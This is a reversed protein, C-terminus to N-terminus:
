KSRKAFQLASDFRQFFPFKSTYCSLTHKIKQEKKNYIQEINKTERQEKSILCQTLIIIKKSTCIIKVYVMDYNLENNKIKKARDRKEM